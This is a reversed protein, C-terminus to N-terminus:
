IIIIVRVIILIIISDNVNINYNDDNNENNNANNTNNDNNNNYKTLFHCLLCLQLKPPTSSGYTFNYEFQSLNMVTLSIFSIICELTVFM